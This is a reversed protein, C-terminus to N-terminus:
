GSASTSRSGGNTSCVRRRPRPSRQRQGSRRKYGCSKKSSRQWLATSRRSPPAHRRFANGRTCGGPRGRCRCCSFCSCSRSCELWPLCGGGVAQACLNGFAHNLVKLTSCHTSLVNWTSKVHAFILNCIFATLIGVTIMFENVSVSAGRYRFPAIETLYAVDAIASVAVGIGVIFRGAYITGLNQAFTLLLTGFIFVLDVCIITLKRGIRDTVWGGAISGFVYGIYLISVVLGEEIHDLDMDDALVELAGAIVGIDYGFLLGGISAVMAAKVAFVKTRTSTPPELAHRLPQRMDDTDLGDSQEPQGGNSRQELGAGAAQQQMPGQVLVLPDSLRLWDACAERGILPPPKLRACLLWCLYEISLISQRTRAGGLILFLLVRLVAAISSAM